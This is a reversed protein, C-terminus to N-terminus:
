RRATLAALLLSWFCIMVAFLPIQLDPPLSYIIAVAPIWVIWGSIQVSLIQRAYDAWDWGRRLAALDYGHDRLRYCAVQVPQAWLPAYVLMDFAVKRLITGLDTGTGFLLGQCRYFLDVEAGRWSWLLVVFALDGWLLRRPIRGRMAEVLWPILGAAVATSIASFLFGGDAKAAAAAAFAGRTWPLHYYAVVIAVALAQLCLGPLLNRRAAQALPALWGAPAAAPAAADM